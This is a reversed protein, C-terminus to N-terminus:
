PKLKGSRRLKEAGRLLEEIEEPTLV